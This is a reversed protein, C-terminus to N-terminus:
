ESIVAIAGVSMVGSCVCAYDKGNLVILESYQQNNITSQKYSCSDVM